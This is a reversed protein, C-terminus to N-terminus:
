PRAGSPHERTGRPTPDGEVLHSYRDIPLNDWSDTKGSPWRITLRGSVNGDGLGFLVRSDNASLYSGGGKVTRLLKRGGVELTLRAGVADRGPRGTLAVGLWHRGNDLTNRLLVVPENMHCIVLDLRGDNDLDGVALGRGMHKQRFFTGGQETVNRFAVAAPKDGHRFQNRLLIPRQTLTSPDQPYRVVHGNSIIIDEAGDRDYDFFATGFGV